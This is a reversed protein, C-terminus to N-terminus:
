LFLSILAPYLPSWYPNALAWYNGERVKMAIDIYSTSDGSPYRIDDRALLMFAMAIVWCAACLALIVKRSPRAPDPEVVAKVAAGHILILVNKMSMLTFLRSQHNRDSAM